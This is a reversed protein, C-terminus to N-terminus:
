VAVEFIIKSEFVYGELRTQTHEWDFISKFNETVIKPLPHPTRTLQEKAGEVHNEYIHVDSLMGLVKGPKLNSELCLLHLLSAYSALNFPLGLMVDCSRQFWTLNLKDGIKTLHFAFHCPPLAMYPLDLPNWASALMRRDEPDRKLTEVLARLQDLGEGTGSEKPSYAGFRRWQFGYIPGLDNDDANQPNSWENWIKCGRKQYWAKETVGKIFGELEVLMTKFALKKTTVAPFGRSMDHEVMAGVLTLAPVGTRNNKKEGQSLVREVLDLYARM